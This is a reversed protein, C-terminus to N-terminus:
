NQHRCKRGPRFLRAASVIDKTARPQRALVRVVLQFAVSTSPRRWAVARAARHTREHRTRSTAMTSFAISAELSIATRSCVFASLGGWRFSSALPSLRLFTPLFHSYGSDQKSGIGQITAHWLSPARRLQNLNAGLNDAVAAVGGQLHGENM